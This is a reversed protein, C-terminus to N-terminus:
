WRRTAQERPRPQTTTRNGRSSNCRRHASRANAPDLLGGGRSIPIAHDLTFAWPSTQAARGTLSYDIPQRCWWCPLGLARQRDCLTRYPRGNRPNRAM